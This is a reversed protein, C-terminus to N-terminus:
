ARLMFKFIIIIIFIFIKNTWRRIFHFLCILYFQLLVLLMGAVVAFYFCSILYFNEKQWFSPSSPWFHRICHLFRVLFAVVVAAVVVFSHLHHLSKLLFLFSFNERGSSFSCCTLRSYSQHCYHDAALLLGFLEAAFSGFHLWVLSQCLFSFNAKQLSFLLCNLHNCSLHCCLVAVWLFHSCSFYNKQIMLFAVAAVVFFDFHLWVLSHCLFSFNAKQLSFLLCNLHNCSLHYYLAAMWLFRSCSFYDKQLM